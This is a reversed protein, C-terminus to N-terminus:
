PILFKPLDHPIESVSSIEGHVEVPSQPWFKLALPIQPEEVVPKATSDIVLLLQVRRSPQLAEVIWLHGTLIGPSFADDGSGILRRFPVVLVRLFVAILNCANGNRLDHWWTIIHEGECILSQMHDNHHSTCTCMYITYTYHSLSLLVKIWYSLTIIINM